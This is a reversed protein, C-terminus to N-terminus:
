KQSATFTPNERLYKLLMFASQPEKFKSSFLLNEIESRPIVIREINEDHELIQDTQKFELVKVYYIDAPAKEKWRTKGFYEMKLIEIGQEELAEKRAADLIHLTLETGIRLRLFEELKEFIKGGPLYPLRKGGSSKRIEHNLIFGEKTEIIIRVSPIFAVKGSNEEIGRAVCFSDEKYVIDM